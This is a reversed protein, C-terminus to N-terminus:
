EININPNNKYEKEIAKKVREVQKPDGIIIVYTNYISVGNSLTLEIKM